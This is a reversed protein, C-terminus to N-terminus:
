HKPAQVNNYEYRVSMHTKHGGGTDIDMEQRLILGKSKSVWIQSDVNGHPTPDHTSYLAASEGNVSENRVYHCSTKATKKNRAVLDKSEQLSLPSPGWKGNMLVYQVGGAFIMESSMTKKNGVGAGAETGFMHYPTTFLKDGADMVSQCASDIGPNAALPMGAYLIQSSHRAALTGSSAMLFAGLAAALVRLIAAERRKNFFM